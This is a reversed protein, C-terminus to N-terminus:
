FASDCYQGAQFGPTKTCNGAFRIDLDRIDLDRIDLDRIDLDSCENKVTMQGNPIIITYVLIYFLLFPFDSLLLLLSM